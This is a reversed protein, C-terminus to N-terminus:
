HWPWALQRVRVPRGAVAVAGVCGAEPEFAHLTFRGPESPDAVSDLLRPREGPGFSVDLSGPPRTLGCGLAKLIAEKRTWAEYFSRLRVSEPLAHLRVLEVPSLVARALADATELPRVHEVDVGIDDDGQTVACVALAGSHALSFRLGRHPAALSPKGQPEYRFRVDGADVGLHGALVQRLFARCAVFRDHLASSAFRRARAVEDPALCRALGWPRTSARELCAVWLDVTGAAAGEWAGRHPEDAPRDVPPQATSWWAPADDIAAPAQRARMRTM